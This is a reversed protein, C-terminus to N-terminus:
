IAAAVESRVSAPQLQVAVYTLDDGPERGGRFEDVATRIDAALREASDYPGALKAALSEISFRDGVENQVDTLGDTYLVLSTLRELRFRQPRYEIDEDVGLVLQPEVRLERFSGNESALPPPHGASAIQLESREFDIVVVLMTVFQGNFVQECLQRNVSALCEGADCLRTLATRVLLQTTSMLFAAAMGHGTVDGIVLARRGDPLSFWNYFDGSIHSAPLNVASVDLGEPKHRQDPLWHLQIRRAQTLEREILESRVRELRLRTRIMQIATSVLIATVATMVFGAWTMAERFIPNVVQDVASLSTSIAVWWNVGGALQVPQITAMTPTLTEDGVRVTRDFVETGAANRQMFRRVLEALRPDREADGAHVGRALPDPSSMVVGREDILFAGSLGQRNVDQLLAQEVGEIPVVAVIARRTPGGLPVVVIHGGREGFRIFQSIEARGLGAVWSGFNRIIEQAVEPKEPGFQELLTGDESNVILVASVKGEVSQFVAEVFRGRLERLPRAADTAPGAPNRPPPLPANELPRLLDLVNLVSRYYSQVGAATQRGLLELTGRAQEIAQQRASQHLFRVSLAVALLVVALLVVHLLLIYRAFRAANKDM